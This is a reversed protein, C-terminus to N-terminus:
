SLLEPYELGAFVSTPLPDNNTEEFPIPTEAMVFQESGQSSKLHHEITVDRTALGSPLLSEKLVVATPSPKQIQRDYIRPLFRPKTSRLVYLARVWDIWRRNFM